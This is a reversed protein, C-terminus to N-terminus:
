ADNGARYANIWESPVTDPIEVLTDFPEVVKDGEAKSQVTWLVCRTALCSMGTLFVGMGLVFLAAMAAGGIQELGFRWPPEVRAEHDKCLM